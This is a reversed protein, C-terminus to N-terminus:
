RYVTPNLIDLNDGMPPRELHWGPPRAFYTGETCPSLATALVAENAISLYLTIIQAVGPTM